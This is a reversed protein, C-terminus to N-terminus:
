AGADLYVYFIRINLTVSEGGAWDDGNCYVTYHSCQLYSSLHHWSTKAQHRLQDTLTKKAIMHKSVGCSWWRKCYVIVVRIMMLKLSTKILLNQPALPVSWCPWCQGNSMILMQFLDLVMDDLEINMVCYWKKHVQWNHSFKGEQTSEPAVAVAFIWIKHVMTIEPVAEVYFM